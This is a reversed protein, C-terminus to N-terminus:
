GIVWRPSCHASFLLSRSLGYEPGDSTLSAMAVRGSQHVQGCVDFMGKILILADMQKKGNNESHGDSLM